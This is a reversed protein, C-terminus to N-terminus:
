KKIKQPAVVKDRLLFFYIIGAIINLLIVFIILLMRELNSVKVSLLVERIVLFVWIMSVLLAMSFLIPAISVKMLMMIISMVYFSLSFYFAQTTQHYLNKM